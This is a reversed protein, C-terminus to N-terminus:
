ELPETAQWDFESWSQRASSGDLWWIIFQVQEKFESQSQHSVLQRAAETKGRSIHGQIRYSSQNAM